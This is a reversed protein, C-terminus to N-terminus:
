REGRGPVRIANLNSFGLWQTWHGRVDTPKKDRYHRYVPEGRFAWAKVTPVGKPYTFGRPDTYLPVPVDVITWEGRPKAGAEARYLPWRQECQAALGCLAAWYGAPDGPDACSVGGATCDFQYLTMGDADTYVDGLLSPGIGIAGPRGKGKYFVVPEWDGALVIEQDTLTDPPTFLPKGKFAYQARGPGAGVVAWDGKVQALLPAVLPKFEENCNGCIAARRVMAKTPTYVPRLDSTSLVISDEYRMLRLDGVMPKDRSAFAWGRRVGRSFVAGFRDGPKTDRISFHLPREMWAWQRGGERREIITFDGVPQANAPALYPPWKDTCAKQAEPHLVSLKGFDGQTDQWTTIPVNSCNSKGPTNFDANNMYLTKGEPTVLLPGDDTMVELAPQSAPEASVQPASTGASTLGSITLAAVAIGCWPMLRM